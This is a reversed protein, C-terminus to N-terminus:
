LSRLGTMWEGTQVFHTRGHDLKLKMPGVCLRRNTATANSEAPTQISGFTTRNQPPSSKLDEGHPAGTLGARCPSDSLLPLGLGPHSVPAASIGAGANQALGTGPMFLCRTTRNRNSTSYTPTVLRVADTGPSNSSADPPPHGHRNKLHISAGSSNPGALSLPTCAKLSYGPFHTSPERYTAYYPRLWAERVTRPRLLVSIRDFNTEIEPM